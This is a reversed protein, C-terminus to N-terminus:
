PSKNDTEKFSAKISQTWELQPKKNPIKNSTQSQNKYINQTLLLPNETSNQQQFASFSNFAWEEM